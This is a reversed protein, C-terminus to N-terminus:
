LLEEANNLINAKQLLGDINKIQRSLNLIFVLCALSFVFLLVCYVCVILLYFYLENFIWGGIPKLFAKIENQTSANQLYAELTERVSKMQQICVYNANVRKRIRTYHVQM